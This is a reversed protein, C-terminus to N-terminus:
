KMIKQMLVQANAFLTPDKALDNIQEKMEKWLDSTFHLAIAEDPKAPNTGFAIYKNIKDIQTLNPCKMGLIQDMIQQKYSSWLHGYTDATGFVTDFMKSLFANCSKLTEQAM